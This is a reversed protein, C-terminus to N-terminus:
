NGREKVWFYTNARDIFDDVDTEYRYPVGYRKVDTDCAEEAREIAKRLGIPKDFVKEQKSHKFSFGYHIVGENDQYAVMCAEPCGRVAGSGFNNIRMMVSIRSRIYEVIVKGGMDKLFDRNERKCHERYEKRSSWPNSKTSRKQDTAISVIGDGKLYAACDGGVKNYNGFLLTGVQGM